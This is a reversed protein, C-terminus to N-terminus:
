IICMGHLVTVAFALLGSLKMCTTLLTNAFEDYQKM